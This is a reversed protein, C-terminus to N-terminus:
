DASQFIRRPHALRFRPCTQGDHPGLTFLLMTKWCGFEPPNGIDDTAGTIGLDGDGHKDGRVTAAVVRASLRSSAAFSYKINQIGAKPPTGPGTVSPTVAVSGM